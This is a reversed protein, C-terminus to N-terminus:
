SAEGKLEMLYYKIHESKYGIRSMLRVFKDEEIFGEEFWGMIDTKTPMRNGKLAEAQLKEKLMVKRRERLNKWIQTSQVEELTFYGDQYADIIGDLLTETREKDRANKALNVAIDTHDVTAGQMLMIQRFETETIRGLTFDEIAQKRLDKKDATAYMAHALEVMLKADEENYGMARYLAKAESDSVINERIMRRLDVRTPIRYSLASLKDQWFPTYDKVRLLTNLDEKDFRLDEKNFDGKYRDWTKNLVEPQFRHLMDYGTSPGPHEWSSRWELQLWRPNLGARQGDKFMQKLQPAKSDWSGFDIDGYTKNFSPLNHKIGSPMLADTKFRKIKPLEYAEKLGFRIISSPGPVTRETQLVRRAQEKEYGHKKMAKFYVPEALYGQQTLQSLVDPRPIKNPRTRNSRHRVTRIGAEVGIMRGFFAAVAPGFAKFINIGGRIKEEAM